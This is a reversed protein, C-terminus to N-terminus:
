CKRRTGKGDLCGEGYGNSLSGSFAFQGFPLSFLLLIVQYGFVLVAMKVTWYIITDSELHFWGTMARTLWATTFGTLAFVLLILLLDLMGVKWRAQLFHLFSKMKSQAKGPAAKLPNKAM